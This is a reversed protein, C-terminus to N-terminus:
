EKSGESELSLNGSGYTLILLLGGMISLNKFFNNLQSPDALPNHFVITAPIIFIILLIAGIQAKYGLIISLGGLIQFAITFVLLVGAIPLGAKAMSESTAAFNFVKNLGAYIFIVALFSRAVLPIYKKLM